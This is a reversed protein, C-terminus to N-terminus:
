EINNLKIKTETHLMELNQYQTKLSDYMSQFYHNNESNMNKVRLYLEDSLNNKQSKDLENIYQRFTIGTFMLNDFSNTISAYKELDRKLDISLKQNMKFQVLLIEKLHSTEQKPHKHFQLYFTIIAIVVGLITLFETM